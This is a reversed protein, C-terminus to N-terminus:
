VARPAGHARRRKRYRLLVGLGVGLLLLLIWSRSLFSSPRPTLPLEHPAGFFTPAAWYLPSQLEPPADKLFSLRAQQLARDLPLGATLYGYFRDMLDAM